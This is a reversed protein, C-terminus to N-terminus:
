HKLEYIRDCEVAAADAGAENREKRRVQGTRRLRAGQQLPADVSETCVTKIFQLV